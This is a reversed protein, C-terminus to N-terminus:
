TPFEFHLIKHEKQDAWIAKHKRILIQLVLTIQEEPLSNWLNNELLEIFSIYEHGTQLAWNFLEDATEDFTQWYILVRTKKPDLYHLKKKNELYDAVLTLQDLTLSKNVLPNKFPFENVLDRLAIVYIHTATMYTLIFQGWEELLQTYRSAFQKNPTIWYIPKEIWLPLIEKVKSSMKKTVDLASIPTIDKEPSTLVRKQGYSQSDQHQHPNEKLVEQELASLDESVSIPDQESHTLESLDHEIDILEKSIDTIQGPTSLNEHNEKSSTTTEDADKEDNKASKKKMRFMNVVSINSIVSNQKGNLM